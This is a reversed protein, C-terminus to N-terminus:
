NFEVLESFSDINLSILKEHFTTVGIWLFYNDKHQYVNDM